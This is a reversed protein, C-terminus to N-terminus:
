KDKIKEQNVSDIKNRQNIKADFTSAWRENSEWNMENIILKENNRSM